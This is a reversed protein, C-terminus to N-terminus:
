SASHSPNININHLTEFYFNVEQDEYTIVPLSLKIFLEVGPVTQM